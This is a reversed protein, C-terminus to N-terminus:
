PRFYVSFHSATARIGEVYWVTYDSTRVGVQKAQPAELRGASVWGHLCDIWCQEVPFPRYLLRPHFRSVEQIVYTGEDVTRGHHLGEEENGLGEEEGREEMGESTGSLQKDPHIEAFLYFRSIIVFEWTVLQRNPGPWVLGTEFCPAPCGKQLANLM